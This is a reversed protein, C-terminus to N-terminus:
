WNTGKLLEAISTLATKISKQISSPTASVGHIVKQQQVLSSIEQKLLTAAGTLEMLVDVQVLVPNAVINVASLNPAGPLSRILHMAAVADDSALKASAAEFDAILRVSVPLGDSRAADKLEAVAAVLDVPDLADGHVDQLEKLQKKRRQMEASVIAPLRRLKSYLADVERFTNLRVAPAETLMLDNELRLRAQLLTSVDLYAGAAGGKTGSSVARTAEKIKDQNALLDSRLRDWESPPTAQTQTMWKDFLAGTLSRDVRTESGAVAAALVV